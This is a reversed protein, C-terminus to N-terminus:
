KQEQWALLRTPDISISDAISRGKRLAAAKGVYYFIGPERSAFVRYKRTRHQATVEKLGRSELFQVIQETKTM